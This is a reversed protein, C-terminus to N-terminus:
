TLELTLQRSHLEIDMLLNPSLYLSEVTLQQRGLLTAQSSRGAKIAVRQLGLAEPLMVGYKKQGSRGDYSLLYRIGRQNLMELLELLAELSFGQQYRPDRGYSVGQYPPDLYVVDNVTALALCEYADQALLVTRSRLVQATAVLNYRMTHPRMGLRRHDASQNFEGQANYRVAAKVCRALLYLFDAPQQTSNFQARVKEYYLRPDCQQQHWHHEYQEALQEPSEVITKWLAMLATNKDNLVCRKTKGLVLAAISIAASGCFPEILRTTQPMFALIQSALRRKSGQYPFPHPIKM